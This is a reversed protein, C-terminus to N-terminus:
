LLSSIQKLRIGKEPLNDEINKSTEFKQVDALRAELASSVEAKVKVVNRVECNLIVKQRMEPRLTVRGALTAREGHRLSNVISETEANLVRRCIDISLGSRKSIDEMREQTTMGLMKSM